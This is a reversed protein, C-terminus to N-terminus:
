TLLLSWTGVLVTGEQARIAMVQPLSSHLYVRMLLLRDGKYPRM